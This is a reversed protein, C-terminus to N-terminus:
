NYVQQFFNRAEDEELRGREVIYDFLDGSKMHEMVVYVETPTEVVKYVQIIHPHSLSRIINTGRLAAVFNFFM